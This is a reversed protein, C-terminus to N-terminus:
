RYCLTTGKNPGTIDRVNFPVAADGVQLGSKIPDAALAAGAACALAVSTFLLRNM